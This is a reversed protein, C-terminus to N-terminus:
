SANVPNVLPSRDLSRGTMASAYVAAGLLGARRNLIVHIPIRKLMHEMPPKRLFAELFLPLDFADLIKSPIGGGLFVGGTAVSQLAFNGAAAGFVGLFLHLAEVCHPDSGEIGRKTIAAPIERDSCRDGNEKLLPSQGESTFRLLNVLGPGSVIHETHTRGHERTLYQLLEIERATRAAFDGHGGESPCPLLRGQHRVLIAQGLGTGATVLCMNGDANFVGEQLTHLEDAELASVAYAMAEVDNLLWLRSIGTEEIVDRGNVRWPVNSLRVVQKIIPGAVGLCAAEIENPRTGTAHLFSVLIASLGPFDLTPFERTDLLEPRGGTRKFLGVLTKTGGLDSALLM